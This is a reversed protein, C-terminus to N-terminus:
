NKKRPKWLKVTDTTSFIFCAFLLILENIWYGVVCVCFVCERERSERELVTDALSHSERERKERRVFLM